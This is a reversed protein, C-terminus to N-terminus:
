SWRIEVPGLLGSPQLPDFTTYGSYVTPLNMERHLGQRRTREITWYHLNSKTVREAEPLFCDGILRNSWNNIYHIELENWGLRVAATLDAM